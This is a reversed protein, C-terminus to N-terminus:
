PRNSGVLYSPRRVGVTGGVDSIRLVPTCTTRAHVGREYSVRTAVRHSRVRPATAIDDDSPVEAPATLRDFAADLRAELDQVPASWRTAAFCPGKGHRHTVFTARGREIQRILVFTAVLVVAWALVVPHTALVQLMPVSSM